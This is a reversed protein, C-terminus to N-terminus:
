VELGLYQCIKEKANVSELRGCIVASVHTRSLGVNEALDSVTMDKEILKIRVEKGWDPQKRGTM